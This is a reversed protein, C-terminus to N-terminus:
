MLNLHVINKNNHLCIELTIIEFYGINEYSIQDLIKCNFKNTVYLAVGGGQKSSKDIYFLTYDPLEYHMYTEKTLTESIAVVDFIM